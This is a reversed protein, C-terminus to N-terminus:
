IKKFVTYHNKLITVPLDRTCHLKSISISTFIMDVMKMIILTTCKSIYDRNKGKTLCTTYM